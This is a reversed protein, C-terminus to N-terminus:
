IKEEDIIKVKLHTSITMRPNKTPKGQITNAMDSLKEEDTVIVFDLNHKARSAGVYLVRKAEESQFTKEDIDVIIIVKSELGKFKRATTFLIGPTDLDSSLKYPGISSMNSLNSSEETKVTLIVIDNKELGNDTYHRIIKILTNKYSESSYSLYLNPKIGEVDFHMKIKEIGLPKNSTIAINRTNRCNTNLILRCDLSKVWELAQKQQILQNKDYFVYFCGGVNEAIASLLLIHDEYFDQGEDIIIDTYPWEEPNVSYLYESIIENNISNFSGTVKFVLGSLNYFDINPNDKDYNKKLSELLFKNFCLFLVKGRSALRKAKELALLTKGTGAGGQIAAIKQEELYDILYSQAQTMRLFAHEEEAIRTRISPIVNFSPSLLNIIRDEDSSNFHKKEYMQYYDFIREIGKRCNNLEKETLVNGESYAPPLTGINSLGDMSPFWVIPEVPYYSIDESESQIIDIFTFKSREAQTMPDKMRFEEGTLSHIQIWGTDNHKIGGSKVEIVLLGRKPHFLTFDAEGWEIRGKTNRKHWHVSHFITYEDPLSKLAEYVKMEGISGNYDDRSVINPIMRAM